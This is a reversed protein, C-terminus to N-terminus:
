SSRRSRRPSGRGPATEARRRWAQQRERSGCIGHQLGLARIAARDKGVPRKRNRRQAAPPHHDVAVSPLAEVDVRRQPEGAVGDREDHGVPLAADPGHELAPKGAGVIGGRGGRERARVTMLRGVEQKPVRAAQVLGPAVARRVQPRGRGRLGCPELGHRAHRSLAPPELLHGIRRRLGGRRQHHRTGVPQELDTVRGRNRYARRAVAGIRRRRQQSRADIRGAQPHTQDITQRREPAHVAAPDVLIAHRSDGALDARKGLSGVARQPGAIAAATDNAHREPRARGVPSRPGLAVCTLVSRGLTQHRASRVHCRGPGAEEHGRADLGKVHGRVVRRAIAEDLVLREAGERVIGVLRPEEEQACGSPETSAAM